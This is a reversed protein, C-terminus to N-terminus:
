GSLREPSMNLHQHSMVNYGGSLDMIKCTSGLNSEEIAASFNRIIAQVCPAFLAVLIIECKKEPRQYPMM